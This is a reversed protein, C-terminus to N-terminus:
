IRPQRTRVVVGLSVGDLSVEVFRPNRLPAYHFQTYAAGLRFSVRTATHSLVVLGICDLENRQPQYRGAGWLRTGGRKTFLTVFFQDGYDYGVPDSPNLQCLKRKRPATAPHRPPITLGRGTVLFVPGKPTLLVRLSTLVAPKRSTRDAATSVPAYLIGLVLAVACGIAVPRLHQTVSSKANRM